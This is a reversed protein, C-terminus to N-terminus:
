PRPTVNRRRRPTDERAVGASGRRGKAAGGDEEGAERSPALRFRLVAGEVGHAESLRQAGARPFRRSPAPLLARARTLSGRNWRSGAVAAPRPLDRPTDGVQFSARRFRDLHCLLGDFGPDCAPESASACARESADDDDEGMGDVSAVRPRAVPTSTHPRSLPTTAKQFNCNCLLFYRNQREARRPHAFEEECTARGAGSERTAVRRERAGGNAGGRKRTRRERM